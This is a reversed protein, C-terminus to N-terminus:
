ALVLPPGRRVLPRTRPSSAPRLVSRFAPAPAAPAPPVPALLVRVALVLRRRGQEKIAVATVGASTLLREALRDPVFNDPAVDVAGAAIEARRIRDLLWREEFSSLAPALIFLEAVVVFAATLLLLRASLGSPWRLRGFPRSREM